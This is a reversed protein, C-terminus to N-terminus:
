RKQASKGHRGRGDAAAVIFGPDGAKYNFHKNYRDAKDAKTQSQLLGVMVNCHCSLVHTLMRQEYAQTATFSTSRTISQPSGSPKWTRPLADWNAFLINLASEHM